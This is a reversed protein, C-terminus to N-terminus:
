FSPGSMRGQAGEGTPGAGGISDKPDTSYGPERAVYPRTTGTDTGEKDCDHLIAAIDNM